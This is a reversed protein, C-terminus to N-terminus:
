GVPVRWKLRWVRGDAGGLEQQVYAVLSTVFVGIGAIEMTEEITTFLAYLMNDRGYLAKHPAGLMEVGLAGGVFLAAAIGFRWRWRPALSWYFRLYAAGLILVIPGYVVTWPFTLYLSHQALDSLTQNLTDHITFMEDAMLFAFLMALSRWYGVQKCGRRLKEVAIRHLLAAALVLQAGQAYTPMNRERNLDFQVIYYGAGYYVVLHVLHLGVIVSWFTLLARQVSAPTLDLAGDRWLTAPPALRPPDPAVLKTTSM